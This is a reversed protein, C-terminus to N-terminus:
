RPQAPPVPPVPPRAQSPTTPEARSGTPTAAAGSEVWLETVDALTLALRDWPPAMTTPAEGPRRVAIPGSLGLVPPLVGSDHVGHLYGRYLAGDRTRAMAMRREGPQGHSEDDAGVLPWLSEDPGGNAQGARARAAVVLHAVSAVLLALVVEIAVTRVVVTYSRHWYYDDTRVWAGLDLVWSAHVSRVLALVAISVGTSLTAVIGIAALDAVPGRSRRPDRLAVYLFGPALFLLVGIVAAAGDPLVPCGYQAGRRRHHM